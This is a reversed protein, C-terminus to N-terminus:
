QSGTIRYEMPGINWKAVGTRKLWDLVVESRPSIVYKECYARAAIWETSRTTAPTDEDTAITSQLEQISSVTRRWVDLSFLPDIALEEPASIYIPRLGALVAHVAASSGRYLAWNSEAFDNEIDRSTSVRVNVPLKRLGPHRHVFDDFPLVPHMRIVFRLEKLLAAARFTFDILSLCEAELGEPIVLCQSGAADSKPLPTGTYRRHSGYVSVPVSHENWANRLAEATVYGMALLGDPDYATGLSRMLAHSHRQFITHQYGLCATSANALRAAHFAAREWAHGEWTVIVVKPKLRACLRGILAQIRLTSVTASSMAARIAADIVRREDTDTLRDRYASIETAAQKARALLAWEEAYRLVRPLVIRAAPVPRSFRMKSKPRGWADHDILATMSTIGEAALYESLRGYYFDPVDPDAEASVLHSVFLIDVQGIIGTDNPEIDRWGFPSFLLPRLLSANRWIEPRMRSSFPNASFLHSYQALIAPHERLVHLFPVAIWDPSAERSLLARDCVDTLWFYETENM